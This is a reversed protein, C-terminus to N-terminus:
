LLIFIFKIINIQFQLFEFVLFSIFLYLLDVTTHLGLNVGCLLEVSVTSGITVSCHPGHGSYPKLCDWCFSFQCRICTMHACGGHKEIPYHCSPCCKYSVTVTLVNLERYAWYDGIIIIINLISM